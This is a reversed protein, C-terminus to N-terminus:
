TCFILKKGFKELYIRYFLATEFDGLCRSDYAILASVEDDFVVKDVAAYLEGGSFDLVKSKISYGYRYAFRACDNFKQYISIDSNDCVYIICNM